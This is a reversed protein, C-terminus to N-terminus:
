AMLRATNTSVTQTQIPDSFNFVPDRTTTSVTQTQIPDSFNLVLDRTYKGGNKSNFTNKCLSIFGERYTPEWIENVRYLILASEDPNSSMMSADIADKLHPTFNHIANNQLFAHLDTMSQNQVLLSFVEFALDDKFNVVAAQYLLTRMDTLSLVHTFVNFRLYMLIVSINADKLDAFPINMTPKRKTMKQTTTQRTRYIVPKTVMKLTNMRKNRYVNSLATESGGTQRVRSSLRQRPQQHIVFVRRNYTTARETAERLRASEITEQEDLVDNVRQVQAIVQARARRNAARQALFNQLNADHQALLIQLRGVPAPAPARASARAPVPGRVPASGRVPVPFPVPTPAPGRVPVPVPVPAPVPAPGRVPAPVPVPVPAPARAPAPVPVPAPVPAPVAARVPPAEADVNPEVEEMEMGLYLPLADALAGVVNAVGACITGLEAKFLHILGVDLTPRNNDIYEIIQELIGVENAVATRVPAAAARRQVQAVPQAHPACGLHNLIVLPHAKQNRFTNMKIYSDHWSTEVRGYRGHTFTRLNVTAVHCMEATCAREVIDVVFPITVNMQVCWIAMMTLDRTAQRIRAFYNDAMIELLARPDARAIIMNSFGFDILCLQGSARMWCNDPKYDGHIFKFREYLTKVITSSQCFLERIRADLGRPNAINLYQQGNTGDMFEMVIYIIAGAKSITIIQPALAKVNSTAPQKTYEYIIHQIICEKLTKVLEDQTRAGFRECNIRKIAYRNRNHSCLAVSGYTGGGLNTTIDYRDGGILLFSPSYPNVRTPFIQKGLVTELAINRDDCMAIRSVARYFDFGLDLTANVGIPRLDIPLVMERLASAMVRTYIPYM